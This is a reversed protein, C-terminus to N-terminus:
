KLSEELADACGNLVSERTNDYTSDDSTTRKGSERWSAALNAIKAQIAISADTLENACSNLMEMNGKILCDYSHDYGYEMSVMNARIHEIRKGHERWVEALSTLIALSQQMYTM